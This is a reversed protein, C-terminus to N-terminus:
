HATDMDDGYGDGVNVQLDVQLHIQNPSQLSEPSRLEDEPSFMPVHDDLDKYDSKKLCKYWILGVSLGCCLVIVFLIAGSAVGLEFTDKKTRDDLIKKSVDKKHVAINIQSKTLCNV